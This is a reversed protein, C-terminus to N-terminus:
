VGIIYSPSTDIECCRKKYVCSNNQKRQNVKWKVRQPKKCDKLAYLRMYRM